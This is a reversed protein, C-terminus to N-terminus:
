DDSHEEDHITLVSRDAFITCAEEFSIRHKHRNADAKLMDWDFRMDASQVAASNNLRVSRLVGCVDSM